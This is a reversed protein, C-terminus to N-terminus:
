DGQLGLRVVLGDDDEGDDGDDEEREAEHRAVEAHVRAIQAVHLAPLREEPGDPGGDRDHHQPRRKQRSKVARQRLPNQPPSPPPLLLTLLSPPLSPDHKTPAHTQTLKYLPNMSPKRIKVEPM